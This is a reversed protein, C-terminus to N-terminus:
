GLNPATVQLHLATSGLASCGQSLWEPIKEKCTGGDLAACQFKMNERQAKNQLQLRDNSTTSYNTYLLHVVGRLQKNKKVM